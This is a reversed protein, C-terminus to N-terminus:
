VQNCRKRLTNDDVSNSRSRIRNSIKNCGRLMGDRYKKYCRKNVALDYQICDSVLGIVGVYVALVGIVNLSYWMMTLMSVNCVM